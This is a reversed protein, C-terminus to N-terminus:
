SQNSEFGAHKRLIEELGEPNESIDKLAAPDEIEYCHLLEQDDKYFLFIKDEYICQYLKDAEMKEPKIKIGESEAKVPYELVM